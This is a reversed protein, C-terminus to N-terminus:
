SIEVTKKERAKIMADVKKKQAIANDLVKALEKPIRVTEGCRIQYVKGNVCAEMTDDNTLLNMPLCYDVRNDEAATEFMEAEEKGTAAVNTEEAKTETKAKAM